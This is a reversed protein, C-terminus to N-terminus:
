YLSIRAPAISCARISFTSAGRIQLAPHRLPTSRVEIEQPTGPSTSTSRLLVITNEATRTTEIRLFRQLSAQLRSKRYRELTWQSSIGVVAKGTEAPPSIHRASLFTALSASAHDIANLGKPVNFCQCRSSAVCHSGPRGLAEPSSILIPTFITQAHNTRRLWPASPSRTM